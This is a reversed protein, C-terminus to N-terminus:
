MGGAIGGILDLLGGPMVGLYLIAATILAFAIRNADDLRPLLTGATAAVGKELPSRMYLNVVVRLYYYISVIATAIGIVALYVYGAKVAAQFIGFKAIFGATPPLGALSVMCVAFVASRVPHVYGLGRLSEIDGLDRDRTSFAAVVGFAGLDMAVYVALYFLMATGGVVPAALLAMLVYGMQAISSYALLRKVNNTTLAALNGYVMTLAAMVWLVPILAGWGGSMALALQLFALWVAAKSGTSLFGVVPAPGGQYVDPAWLHFPFLSVKFGIGVLLMAWGALGIPGFAGSATLGKMSGALSLDGTAVYVLALGFALFATSVAGVVLYKIGAEGSLFDGRNSALLIYMALTLCELGLFVSLLSTAGGLVAMGFAAFLVLSPYEEDGLPRRSTYGVSLLITLLATIGALFAAMRGYPGTGLMGGAETVPPSYTAAVVAALLAVAGGIFNLRKRDLGPIFAGALLLLVPGVGLILLPLLAHLESLNM